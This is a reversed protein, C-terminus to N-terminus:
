FINENESDSSDLINRLTLNRIGELLDGSDDFIEQSIDRGTEDDSHALTSDIIHTAIRLAAETATITSAATQNGGVPIPESTTIVSESTTDPTIDTVVTNNSDIRLGAVGKKPISALDRKVRRRRSPDDQRLQTMAEFDCTYM